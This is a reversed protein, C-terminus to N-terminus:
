VDFSKNTKSLQITCTFSIKSLVGFVTLVKSSQDRWINVAMVYSKFIIIHSLAISFVSVCTKREGFM